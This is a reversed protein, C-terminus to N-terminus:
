VFRSLEDIADELSRQAFGLKACAEDASSIIDEYEEVIKRLEDRKKGIKTTLQKLKALEKKTM